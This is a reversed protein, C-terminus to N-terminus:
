GFSGSWTDIVRTTAAASLTSSSTEATWFAPSVWRQIDRKKIIEDEEGGLKQKNKLWM